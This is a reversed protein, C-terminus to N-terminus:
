SAYNFVQPNNRKQYQNRLYSILNDFNTIFGENILDSVKKELQWLERQKMEDGYKNRLMKEHSNFIVWNLAEGVKQMAKPMFDKPVIKMVASSLEKYADGADNRYRIMEDYVFRLVKVEFTPNIWMAFKIFLLPNMWVKDPTKGEKTNRGKIKILLQNEGIDIKARHSEDEALAKLFEKVKTSDIFESMRRRPNGEVGNWQRLLESGDFYGDSTRQVVRFNDIYRVMEQNTKM